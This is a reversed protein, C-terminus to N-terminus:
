VWISMKFFVLILTCDCFSVMYNNGAVDIVNYCIVCEKLGGEEIDGDTFRASPYSTGEDGNAQSRLPTVETMENEIPRRYDYAVPLFRKPILFRSGFRAQM